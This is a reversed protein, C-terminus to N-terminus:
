NNDKVTISTLREKQTDLRDKAYSFTINVNNWSISSLMPVQYLYIPMYVDGGFNGTTENAVYDKDWEKVTPLWM